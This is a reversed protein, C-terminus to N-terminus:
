SSTVIVSNWGVGLVPIPLGVVNPVKVAGTTEAVFGVAVLGLKITWTVVAGDPIVWYASTQYEAYLLGNVVWIYKAPVLSIWDLPVGQPIEVTNGLIM